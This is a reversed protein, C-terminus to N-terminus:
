QPVSHSDTVGLSWTYRIAGITLSMSRRVTRSIPPSADRARVQPRQRPQSSLRLAHHPDLSTFGTALLPSLFKWGEWDQDSLVAKVVSTETGANKM